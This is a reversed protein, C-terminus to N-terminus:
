LSIILTLYCSVAQGWTRVECARTILADTNNTPDVRPAITTVLQVDFRRARKSRPSAEHEVSNLSIIYTGDDDLRWYRMIVFEVDQFLGFKRLIASQKIQIHLVDTHDDLQQLVTVEALLDRLFPSKNEM